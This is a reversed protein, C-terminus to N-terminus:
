NEIYNLNCLYRSVYDDANDDDDVYDVVDDVDADGFDLDRTGIDDDYNKTANITSNLCDKKSNKADL